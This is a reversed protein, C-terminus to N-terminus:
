IQLLEWVLSIVEEKYSLCTETLGIESQKIHGTPQRM